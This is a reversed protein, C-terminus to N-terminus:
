REAGGCGPSTAASAKRAVDARDFLECAGQTLTVRAQWGLDRFIAAPSYCEAGILRRVARSDMALKRRMLRGVLDGVWGASVLVPAPVRWATRARGSAARLADYIEAGSWAQVDAVIYTKGSARTDTIVCRVASVVDEIHVLSRRQGTEPLPPFWGGAIGRAMRELNGRSGRGYVMALRLNCVRMGSSQGAALVAAEAHRKSEGYPTDPPAPWQEDVCQRGPAGMAKVSSLYIFRKVGARAAADLLNCTGVCNIQHHRLRAAGEDDDHAHAYGACHVVTDIGDCARALSAPDLLDAQRAGDVRVAVRFMPSVVVGDRMLADVLRGGVFGGAGTVLVRGCDEIQM